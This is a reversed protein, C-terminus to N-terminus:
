EGSLLAFLLGFSTGLEGSSSIRCWRRVLLGRRCRATPVGWRSRRGPSGPVSAVLLRLRWLRLWRLLVLLPQKRMWLLLACGVGREPHLLM